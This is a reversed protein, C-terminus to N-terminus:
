NKVTFRLHTALPAAIVRSRELQIREPDVQGFLRLGQGFLVPVLHLQIEDLLGAQLYQQAINAGGAICIDKGRAAAKAQALAGHVGETVFIFQMDGRHVTARAEHSLVFHPV